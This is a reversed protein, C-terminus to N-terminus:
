KKPYSRSYASNSELVAISLIYFNQVHEFGLYAGDDCIIQLM